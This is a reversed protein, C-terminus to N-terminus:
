KVLVMKRSLVQDEFRLTYFYIGSALNAGDFKVDYTQAPKMGNMLTAVEEGLVNYVTLSVHGAKPITFSIVTSPNFPNPYNQDLKFTGAVNPQNNVATVVLHANDMADQIKTLEQTRQALWATKEAPFWNLDGLPFGGIGATKLDADSYSLDVPIPWDSYVYYQPGINVLRWDPLVAASGAAGTDVTALTFVKLNYLAGGTTTQFLNEPKTFTPMQNKWTDTVCYSYPTGSFRGLHKFVSDTRSNVIIRQSQWNTVGNLQATNLTAEMDNLYPDWYALNSQVLFKRNTGNAVDASDPYVNVLGMPLWDLDQEGSDISQMRPYPQINCNVFINNTLSINSQYGLSMFIYGSCDVFTNHNIIIRNYYHDRFKYMSGQANIHTCNEVTLTNQPQFDDLVGGNRRCPQGVMNVFYCNRFTLDCNPNGTVVFIWRTREMICNDFLLTLNSNNTGTYAWNLSGDNAAPVLNCNMITLNGNAGIGGSNSTTGVNGTILPPSSAGDSNTKISRSDSGVIVAGHAASSNPNNQLPYFGGATLEYVRGAPVSVTDAVMAIYLSNATGGNYEDYTKIVLTDGKVEKVVDNLSQSFAVCLPAVALAVVTLLLLLKKMFDETSIPNTSKHNLSQFLQMVRLKDEEITTTITDLSQM